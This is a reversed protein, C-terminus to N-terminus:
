MVVVNIDQEMTANGDIFVNGGEIRAPLERVDRWQWHGDLPGYVQLMAKVTAVTSGDTSGTYTFNIRQELAM